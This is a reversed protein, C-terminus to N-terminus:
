FHHCCAVDASVSSVGSLVYAGQTYVDFRELKGSGDKKYFEFDESPHLTHGSGFSTHKYERLTFPGCATDSDLTKQLISGLKLLIAKGKVTNANDPKFAMMTTSALGASHETADLLSDAHCHSHALGVASSLCSGLRGFMGDLPLKSNGAPTILLTKGDVGTWFKWLPQIAGHLVSKFCGVGDAVFHFKKIDDHLLNTIVWHKACVVEWDDQLTDSTIMMSFQLDKIEKAKVEADVPNKAIM